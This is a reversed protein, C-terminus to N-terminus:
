TGVPRRGGGVLSGPSPVGARGLHGHGVAPPLPARAAPATLAVDQRLIAAELEKLRPGPELGLEEVLLARTAQYSFLAEAQRGSRYLALMLQGRLGEDFPHQQILAELRPVAATHLGTALEADILDQEAALRQDELRGIELQAFPEFALDALPPGRWLSLAQRLKEIREGAAETARAEALLREFRGLDIQEPDVDLVYGTSRTLLVESGLTKRLLSVYNQLADRATRPPWEDWVQEILADTSMVDGARLLLIALLVRHKRRSLWVPQERDFVELSGFVRFTLRTQATLLRM